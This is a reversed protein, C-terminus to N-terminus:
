QEGAIIRFYDDSFEKLKLRISFVKNDETRFYYRNFYEFKNLVTGDCFDSFYKTLYLYKKNWDWNENREKFFGILTYKEDSKIKKEKNKKPFMFKGSCDKTFEVIFPVCDVPEFSTELYMRLSEEDEFLINFTKSHNQVESKVTFYFKCYEDDYVVRCGYSNAGEIRNYRKETTVGADSIYVVENKIFNLFGPNIKRVTGILYKVSNDLENVKDINVMENKREKTGKYVM